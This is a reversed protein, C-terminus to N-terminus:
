KLGEKEVGPVHEGTGPVIYRVHFVKCGLWAFFISSFVGIGGVVLAAAGGAFASVVYGMGFFVHSIAGAVLAVALAGASMFKRKVTAFVVLAVLPLFVFTGTWFGPNLAIPMIGSLTGACHMLGNVLIFGYPALGIVPNRRCLWASVPVAVWVLLINVEPFFATPLQSLDMVGGANAFVQQIILYSGDALNCSYEEFQHILYAPVALWALWVPDLWRPDSDSRLLNTCFLLVIMVAAAGLGVWPWAYWFEDLIGM